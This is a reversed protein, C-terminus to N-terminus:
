RQLKPGPNEDPPTDLHGQWDEEEAYHFLTRDDKTTVTVLQVSKPSIGEVQGEQSSEMESLNM